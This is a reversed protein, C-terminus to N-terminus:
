DRPIPTNCNGHYIKTQDSCKAFSDFVDRYGHERWWECLQRNWGCPLLHILHPYEMAVLTYFDQDGLHGKFSYKQTLNQVVDPRLLNQYEVSSRQKEIDILVVGSNVGPFGGTSLPNGFKTDKHQSRYIYLIHQYVPTLEPALGLVTQNGFNKFENFLLVIDTTLKTDVDIMVSLTQSLPAIKYLGISIFFLADSYYAGPQSSFHPRMTETIDSLEKTVSKVDYFFVEIRKGTYSVAQVILQQAIQKSSDDCIIHFNLVSSSYKLISNILTRFKYKLPSNRYRVKTFIFWVNFDFANDSLTTVELSLNILSNQVSREETKQTGSDKRYAAEWLVNRTLFAYIVVLFCVFIILNLLIKYFLRMLTCTM